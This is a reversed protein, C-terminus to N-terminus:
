SYVFDLKLKDALQGGHNKDIDSNTYNLKPTVNFISKTAVFFKGNEPNIGAFVAPAGDWKVTVNVKGKSNGSLMEAVSQLFSLAADVGKSGENFVEDEIHEMHLNKAETIYGSFNLM